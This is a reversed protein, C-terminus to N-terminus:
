RVGFNLDGFNVGGSILSGLILAFFHFIVNIEQITLKRSYTLLKFEMLSETSKNNNVEDSTHLMTHSTIIGNLVCYSPIITCM